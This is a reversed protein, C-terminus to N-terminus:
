LEKNNNKKKKRYMSGCHASASVFTGEASFTPSDYTKEKKVIPYTMIIIIIIIMIMIKRYRRM